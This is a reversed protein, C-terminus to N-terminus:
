KTEVQAGLLAVKLQINALYEEDHTFAKKEDDWRVIACPFDLYFQDSHEFKSAEELNVFCDYPGYKVQSEPMHTDFYLLKTQFGDKKIMVAYVQDLDLELHFTGKQEGKFEGLDENDKYVHLSYEEGKAGNITINGEVPLYWGDAQDRRDVLNGQAFLVSTLLMAAVGIASRNIFQEM